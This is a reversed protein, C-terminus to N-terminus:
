PVPLNDKGLRRGTFAGPTAGPFRVAAQASGPTSLGPGASVSLARGCGRTIACREASRGEMQAM